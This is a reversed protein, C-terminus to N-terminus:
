LNHYCYGNDDQRASLNTHLQPENTCKAGKTRLTTPGFGAEDAVYVKRGESATAQPADSLFESVTDM